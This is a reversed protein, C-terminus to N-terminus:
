HNNLKFSFRRVMTAIRKERLFGVTTEIITSSSVLADSWLQLGKKDSFNLGQQLSKKSSNSSFRVM